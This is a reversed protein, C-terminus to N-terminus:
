LPVFRLHPLYSCCAEESTATDGGAGVARVAELDRLLVLGNPSGRDLIMLEGRDRQERRGRHRRGPRAQHGGHADDSDSVPTRIVELRRTATVADRAPAKWFLDQGVIDAGLLEALAQSVRGKGCRTCGTIGIVVVGDAM